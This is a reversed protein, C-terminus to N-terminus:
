SPTKEVEINFVITVRSGDEDLGLDTPEQRATIKQYFTGGITTNFKGDLADYAAKIMARTTKYSTGRAMIQATPRQTHAGPVNHIRTPATGGTETLSMYPGSGSPIVAKSGLFISSGVIGVGQTALYAAIEDLFPL